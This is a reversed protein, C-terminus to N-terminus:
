SLFFDKFPSFEARQHLIVTSASPCLSHLCFKERQSGSQATGRGHCIYIDAKATSSTVARCGLTSSVACSLVCCRHWTSVAWMSWLRCKWIEWAKVICPKQLFGSTLNSRRFFGVKREALLHKQPLCILTHCQCHCPWPNLGTHAMWGPPPSSSGQLNRGFWSM